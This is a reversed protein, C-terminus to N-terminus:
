KPRTQLIRSLLDRVHSRTPGADATNVVVYDALSRKKDLAAQLNERRALEGAGWGRRDRVRAARVDAPADVFVVADCQAHLGTELLLPTDWVFAPVAPDGAAAAMVADRNAAVKAHLLGELRARDAAAHPGTFIRDAVARRDVTGNPKFVGDGWWQRLLAQVAPDGYAARVQADADIVLCGLEGFLAAVFSKGSGVGGTIGIVPRGHRMPAMMPASPAAVDGAARGRCVRPERQQTAALPVPM